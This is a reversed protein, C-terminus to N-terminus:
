GAWGSVPMKLATEPTYCAPDIEIPSVGSRRLNELVRKDDRASEDWVAREAECTPEFKWDIGEWGVVDGPNAWKGDPLQIRVLARQLSM